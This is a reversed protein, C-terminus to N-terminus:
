SCACAAQNASKEKWRSCFGANIKEAAVHHYKNLSFYPCLINCIEAMIARLVASFNVKKFLSVFKKASFISFIVALYNEQVSFM